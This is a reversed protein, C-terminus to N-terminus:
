QTIGFSCDDFLAPVFKIHHRDCIATFTDLTKLFYATDDAYVAYQLVARLWKMGSGEALSLEKEIADADFSTKDWMATYNIAYAPIYNFGCYWPQKNYWDMAKNENWRQTSDQASGYGPCSILAAMLVYATLGKMISIPQSHYKM